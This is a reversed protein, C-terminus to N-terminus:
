HDARFHDVLREFDSDTPFLASTLLIRQRGHRIQLQKVFGANFVKTEIETLPLEWEASSLAGKPVILSSRTVAVRHPSKSNRWTALAIYAVTMLAGVAVIEIIMTAAWPELPRNGMKWGKNGFIGLPVGVLGVLAVVGFLWWYRTQFSGYRSQFVVGTTQKAM